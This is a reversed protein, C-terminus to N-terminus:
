SEQQVSWAPPSLPPALDPASEVARARTVPRQALVTRVADMVMDVTLNTLCRLDIPCRKLQCPGCEVPVQLKVEREYGTDTWEQHTPGFITVTPVDFANGYHRPGTDNCVLLSAERVMVKLSGLTTPPDICCVPASRAADAIAQMLEAETKPNGILVSRLGHEDRLRDCVAAFREAPWCKSAGFAAGPNIVAYPQDDDLGYRRLLTEGAREQQPTLGLHLRRDAVPCGVYEALRVYYDLVPAPVFEGHARLARLRDTLLWGRGERAYGVRRRVGARWAALASRFSNTLLLALDFRQGRLRRAMRLTYVERALGGSTPWHFVQDHWGCGDLIDNVYRRMLYTIRADAFHARLAALVPTAMVVDGVWNPIVVLIRSPSSNPVFAPM